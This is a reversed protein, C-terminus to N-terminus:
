TTHGQDNAAASVPAPAAFVAYQGGLSLWGLRNELRAMAAYLRQPFFLYFRSAAPIMGADRMIRRVEAPGLLIANADVPCRRVVRRTVPNRPNHEFIAFVGGPRLVRAVERTLAIRSAPDLHHYVCAATIVDFSDNLAPLVAPAPQLELKLEDCAGLMEASPDCGVAEAFFRRGIRLLEGRGCGVDLWRMARMPIPRGDLYERLVEWKRQHFFLPDGAFRERVPDRLLADYQKAYSDFEPPM